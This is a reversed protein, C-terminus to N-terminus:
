KSSEFGFTFVCYVISGTPHSNLENDLWADLLADLLADRDLDDLEFDDLEFDDRGLADRCLVRFRLGAKLENLSDSMASGYM